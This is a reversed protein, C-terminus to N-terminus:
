KATSFSRKIIRLLALGGWITLGGLVVATVVPMASTFLTTLQTQAGTFIGNIDTASVVPTSDAFAGLSAVLSLASISKKM